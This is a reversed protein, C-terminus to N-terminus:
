TAGRRQRARGYLRIGYFLGAAVVLTIVVGIVGALGTSLRSEEVGEVAYDALPSGALDHDQAVQDFGQEISVRELGDPANSALGALVGAVVLAVVVGGGVFWWLRRDM